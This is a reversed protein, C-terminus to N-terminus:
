WAASAVQASTSASGSPSRTAPRGAERLTSELGLVSATMETWAPTGFPTERAVSRRVAVREADTLPQEVHALWHAGRAVPGAHASPNLVDPPPCGLSSWAWATASDVLHARMPNREVYRIVTLLHDDDQVAFPKFRGQWLHGRLGDHRRYRSVYSTMLWHMWKSIDHDGVPWLVFHFHNPMLGYALLRMPQRLSAEAM